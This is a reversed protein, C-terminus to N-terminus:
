LPVEWGDRAERAFGTFPFGHFLQRRIAPRHRRTAPLPAPARSSASSSASSPGPAGSPAPRPEPLNAPAEVTLIERFFRALLKGPRPLGGRVEIRERYRPARATKRRRGPGDMRAGLIGVGPSGGASSNQKKKDGGGGLRIGEEKKLVTRIARALTSPDQGGLVDKVADAPREGPTPIRPARMSPGPRDSSSPELAAIDPLSDLDATSERASRPLEEGAEEAFDEGTSAGAFRGSGRGAGDPAGPGDDALEEALEGLAQAEAQSAADDDLSEDGLEEM